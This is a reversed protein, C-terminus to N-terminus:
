NPTVIALHRLQVRFRRGDAFQIIPQRRPRRDVVVADQGNRQAGDCQFRVRTGIAFRVPRGTPAVPPADYKKALRVIEKKVRLLGPIGDGKLDGHVHPQRGKTWGLQYFLRTVATYGEGGRHIPSTEVPTKATWNTTKKARAAREILGVCLTVYGALKVADLTAAFARFEVTPKDGTAVNLVHYRNHRGSQLAYDAAGYRHLGNCWRGLERSKTGTSAYIAKEFNAVLTVLKTMFEADSKNVGVHIHLGCSPNVKAGLTRIKALDALCQKLGASGQFVPSVFECAQHSRRSTRISPDADAKWGALEPIPTGHGHPGVAVSLAGRPITTEIEVGFTIQDVNMTTELEPNNTVV